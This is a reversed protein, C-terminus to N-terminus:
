SLEFHDFCFGNQVLIEGIKKYIDEIIIWCRTERPEVADAERIALCDCGAYRFAYKLWFWHVLESIMRQNEAQRDSAPAADGILYALLCCGGTLAGCTCSGEGCGQALGGVANLLASNKQDQADLGLLTIIQSCLYGQAALRTIKLRVSTNM